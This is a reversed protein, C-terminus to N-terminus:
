GPAKSAGKLRPEGPLTNEVFSFAEPFRIIIKINIFYNRVAFALDTLQKVVFVNYSVLQFDPCADVVASYELSYDKLETRKM